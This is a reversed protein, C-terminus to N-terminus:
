TVFNKSNRNELDHKKCLFDITSNAIEIARNAVFSGETDIYIAKAGLGGFCEPIQVNVSLQMCLQTKGLGAAGCVETIKGLPFGGGLIEDLGNNLTTIHTCKQAEKQKLLDYASIPKINKYM